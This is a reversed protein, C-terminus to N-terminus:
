GESAFRAAVPGVIAGALRGPCPDGHAFSFVTGARAPQRPDDHHARHAIRALTEQLGACRDKGAREAAGADFDVLAFAIAAGGPRFQRQAAQEEAAVPQRAGRAEQRRAPDARAIGPAVVHDVPAVVPQDVARRALGLLPEGAGVMEVVDDDLEAPVVCRDPAAPAARDEPVQGPGAERRGGAADRDLAM